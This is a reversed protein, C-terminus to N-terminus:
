TTVAQSRISNILQRLSGYPVPLFLSRLYGSDRVLRGCTMWLGDVFLGPDTAPSDLRQPLLLGIKQTLPAPNTVPRHRM